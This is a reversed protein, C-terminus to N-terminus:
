KNLAPATTTAPLVKPTNVKAMNRAFNFICQFRLALMVVVLINNIIIILLLKIIKLSNFLNYIDHISLISNKIPYEKQKKKFIHM